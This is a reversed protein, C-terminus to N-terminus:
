FVLTKGNVKLWDRRKAYDPLIAAVGEWFLHSHNHHVLHVLEHVVVYDIIELPALVLRLNLNINRKSGSCSGWRTRAQNIRLQNYNLNYKQAYLDLRQKFVQRAQQRYWAEFLAAAQPQLAQDLYFKGSFRLATSPREVLELPYTAGLYLFREGAHYLHKPLSAQALGAQKQRSRIWAAHRKVVADIQSQTAQLPARIILKGEDDVQLAITRRNSRVIRYNLM